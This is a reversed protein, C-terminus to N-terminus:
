IGPNRVSINHISTPKMKDLFRSDFLVGGPGRENGMIPLRNLKRPSSMRSVNSSRVWLYPSIKVISIPLVRVKSRALMSTKFSTSTFFPVAEDPLGRSLRARSVKIQLPKHHIGDHKEWLVVKMRDINMSMFVSHYLAVNVPSSHMFVSYYSVMNVPSSHISYSLNWRAM